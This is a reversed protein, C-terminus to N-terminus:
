DVAAFEIRRNRRKNDASDNPFKPQAEGYGKASVRAVDVGKQGLYAVVSQARRQSLRLNAADSGDSDTHGAVEVSLNPCRAIIDAISDLLASSSPDLRASGSRFNISETRSLIEFRGACEGRDFTASELAAGQPATATSDASAALLIDPAAGTGRTFMFDFSVTGSPIVDVGAAEELKQVGVALNHDKAAISIPTTSAVSVMDDTILTAVIEAEYEKTVGHLDLTYPVTLAKRRRAPLDAVMDPSLSLTVVAEPFMFTEFFLFRMRVNRLDIGTDVSDLAIRVTAEGSEDIEGSLTAFKSSEVVTENKVSQFKLSSAAPDLKWGGAFEGQASASGLACLSFALIAAALVRWGGCRDRKLLM